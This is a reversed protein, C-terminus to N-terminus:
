KSKNHMKRRMKSDNKEKLCKKVGWIWKEGTEWGILEWCMLRDYLQKLDM